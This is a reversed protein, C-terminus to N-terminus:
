PPLDTRQASSPDPALSVEDCGVEVWRNKQTLTLPTLDPADLVLNGDHEGSVHLSTQIGSFYVGGFSLWKKSYVFARRMKPNQSVFGRLTVTPTVVEAFTDRGVVTLKADGPGVHLLSPGDARGSLDFGDFSRGAVVCSGKPGVVDIIDPAAEVPPASSPKPTAHAVVPAVSKPHAACAALSACFFLSAVRM